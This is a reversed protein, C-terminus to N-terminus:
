GLFIDMSLAIKPFERLIKKDVTILPIGLDKALAVFECDYASCNSEEVLNLVPFSPIQYERKTFLREATVMIDQAENLSLLNKRMYSTLTNRLESKWLLPAVWHQDHRHLAEAQATYDSQIYFYCIINTDVVIM